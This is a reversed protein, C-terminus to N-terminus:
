CSLLQWFADKAGDLVLGHLERIAIDKARCAVLGVGLWAGPGDVELAGGIEAFGPRARLQQVITQFDSGDLRTNKKETAIFELGHAARFLTFDEM